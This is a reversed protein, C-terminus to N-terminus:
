GAYDDPNSSNTPTEFAKRMAEPMPLNFNLGRPPVPQTFWKAYTDNIKGSTYYEATAADVVTQFPADDRRLMIGYPEPKAFAEESIMYLSPDKSAAIVIALQADDMVFADARNTELMLFAEAVDKAPLVQANLQRQNNERTIQTLNVSGSVSVVRKGALDDITNLGDSKRAAFRSATLFHSNTFAVQRARDPNNTTSGCELDITGNLMLPIRNSSTVPTENVTLTEMQLEDKVKEVIYDCIDIAYGVIQQQDDIYSFPLASDRVGLTIAGTDKIKKLTGTLDQAQAAGTVSLLSLALLAITKKM